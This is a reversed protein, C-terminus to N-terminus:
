GCAAASGPNHGFEVISVEGHRGRCVRSTRKPVFEMIGVERLRRLPIQAKSHLPAQIIISSGAVFSRFLPCLLDVVPAPSTHRRIENSVRRSDRPGYHCRLTRTAAMVCGAPPTNLPWQVQLGRQLHNITSINLTGFFYASIASNQVSKFIYV